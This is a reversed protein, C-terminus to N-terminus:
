SSYPGLNFIEMFLHSLNDGFTKYIKVSQWAIVLTKKEIDDENKNAIANGGNFEL